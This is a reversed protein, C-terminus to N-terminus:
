KFLNIQKIYSFRTFEWSSQTTITPFTCTNIVHGDIRTGTFWYLSANPWSVHYRNVFTNTEKNILLIVCFSSSPCWQFKVGHSLPDLFIKHCIWFHLNLHFTPGQCFYFARSIFLVSISVIKDMEMHVQGLKSKQKKGNSGYLVPFAM